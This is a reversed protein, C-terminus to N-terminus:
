KKYWVPLHQRDAKNYWRTFVGPLPTSLLLRRGFPLGAAKAKKDHGTQM